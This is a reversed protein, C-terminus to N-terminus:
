HHPFRNKYDKCIPPNPPTTRQLYAIRRLKNPGLDWWSFLHWYWKMHALKKHNRVYTSADRGYWSKVHRLIDDLSRGPKGSPSNKVLEPIKKNLRVKLLEALEHHEGGPQVRPDNKDLESIDGFEVETAYETLIDTLEQDQADTKEQRWKRSAQVCEEVERKRKDVQINTFPGGLRVVVSHNNVKNLGDLGGTQTAPPTGKFSAPWDGARKFSRKWYLYNNVLAHPKSRNELAMGRAFIYNRLKDSSENGIKGNIMARNSATGDWTYHGDTKDNIRSRFFKEVQKYYKYKLRGLEEDKVEPGDEYLHFYEWIYGKAEEIKKSADVKRADHLERQLRKKWKQANQHQQENRHFLALREGDERLLPSADNAQGAPANPAGAWAGAAVCFAVFFVGCKRLFSQIITKKM